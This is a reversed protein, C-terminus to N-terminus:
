DTIPYDVTMQSVTRVTDDPSMVDGTPSGVVEFQVRLQLYECSPYVFRADGRFQIGGAYKFYKEVDSRKMGPKIRRADALAQQVM